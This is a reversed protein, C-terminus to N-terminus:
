PTPTQGGTAGSAPGSAVRASDQYLADALAARVLTAPTKGLGKLVGCVNSGAYLQVAAAHEEKSGPQAALVSASEAPLAMVQCRAVSSVPLGAVKTKLEGLPAAKIFAEVDEVAVSTRKAPNPNAGAQKWMTEALAGRILV